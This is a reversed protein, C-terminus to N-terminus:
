AEKAADRPLDLAKKAKQSAWQIWGIPDVDMQGTQGDESQMEYYLGGTPSCAPADAILRLAEDKKRCEPCSKDIGNHDEIAGTNGCYTCGKM